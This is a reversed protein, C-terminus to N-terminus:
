ILYIGIVPRYRNQELKQWCLGDLVGCTFDAGISACRIESVEDYLSVKEAGLLKLGLWLVAATMGSGCSTIVARQGKIIMDAELAGVSNVLAQLIASPPLFTTYQTSSSTQTKLFLNFPLSYSHPMHGSSLGPRPEPDVGSFRSCIFHLRYHITVYSDFMGAMLDLM